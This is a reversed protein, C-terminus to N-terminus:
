MAKTLKKKEKAPDPTGRQSCMDAEAELQWEKVGKMEKVVKM